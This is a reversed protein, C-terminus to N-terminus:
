EPPPASAGRFFSLNRMLSPILGLSATVAAIISQLSQGTSVVIMVALVMIAVLVPIRIYQWSSVNVEALWQSFRDESEATLVFRRFSENVIFWGCDRYIYGRRLLQELTVVSSPNLTAGMALQFLLIREDLTCQAWKQRYIAGAHSSFFDIIQDHKWHAEIHSLQESYMSKFLNEVKHLQFWGKSEFQLVDLANANVALRSKIPPTWDYLKTYEAILTSWTLVENVDAYETEPVDPYAKQNCLRFLPSVECLFVVSLYPLRHIEQLLSQALIRESSKFALRELGKLVLVLPQMVLPQGNKNNGNAQFAKLRNLLLFKGNHQILAQSVDIAQNKFVTLGSAQEIQAVALAENTRLLLVKFPAGQASLERIRAQWERNEGGSPLMFNDPIHEGMMRQVIMKKCFKYTIILTLIMSFLVLLPRNEVAEQLFKNGDYALMSNKTNLQAFQFLDQNLSAGFAQQRMLANVMADVCIVNKATDQPGCGGKAKTDQEVKEIFSANVGGKSKLVPLLIADSNLNVSHELEPRILRLYDLRKQEYESIRQAIHESEQHAQFSLLYHNSSNILMAAPVVAFFWLLSAMYAVFSFSFRTHEAAPQFLSISLVNQYWSYLRSESWRKAFLNSHAAIYVLGGLALISLAAATYILSVDDYNISYQSYTLKGIIAGGIFLLVFSSIPHSWFIARSPLVGIKNCIILLLMSAFFAWIAVRLSLDILSSMLLLLCITAAFILVATAGFNVRHYRQTHDKDRVSEPKLVRFSLINSWILQNSIFRNWLLLVLMLQVFLVVAVLLMWLNHESIDDVNVFVVVHWPVQESLPSAVFLHEANRYVTNFSVSDLMNVQSNKAILSRIHEENNTEVLINELLARSEDSHYLVEGDDNFVAYGFGKPMIREFFTNMKVSLSVVNRKDTDLSTSTYDAYAFQTSLRADSVNKIRQVYLGNACNDRADDRAFWLQCTIAMKFYARHNLSFDTFNYSSESIRLIPLRTPNTAPKGFLTDDSLAILGQHNLKFASEAFISGIQQESLYHKPTYVLEVGTQNVSWVDKVDKGRLENPPVTVFTTSLDDLVCIIEFKQTQSKNKDGAFRCAGDTVSLNNEISNILPADLQSDVNEKLATVKQLEDAFETIITQLQFEAQAKKTDVLHSFFLQHNVTIALMGLLLVCGTFFLSIDTKTFHSRSSTFRTKLIPILASLILLSIFIWLGIGPSVSLKAIQMETLPAMGLLYYTVTEQNRLSLTIPQVFIRYGIGAIQKDLTGSFAPLGKEEPEATQKNYLEHLLKEVSHFELDAAYTSNELYVKKAVLQGQGDSLIVIPFSLLKEPLLDATNVQIAHRKTSKNTDNDACNGNNNTPPGIYVTRFDPTTFVGAHCSITGVGEATPSHRLLTKEDTTTQLRALAPTNRARNVVDNLNNISSGADRRQLLDTITKGLRSFQEISSGVSHAVTNLERFHLQNQYDENKQIKFIYVASSVIIVLVLVISFVILNSFRKKQPSM